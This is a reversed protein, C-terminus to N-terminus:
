TKGQAKINGDADVDIGPLRRLLDEVTSGPPVKFSSADYEITDGRISLTAKAAKVVVELLESTIPKIKLTGVDNTETASAPLYQQLPLHGVYSVKLLYPTNKVNKFSFEGDNGSRTFNVLTSDKPNLLMVTAFVTVEGMTDSVMGKITVRSPNQGFLSLSLSLQALIFLASLHIKM